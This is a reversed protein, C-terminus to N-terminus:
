ITYAAAFHRRKWHMLNIRIAYFAFASDRTSKQKSLRKSGYNKIKIRNEESRECCKIETERETHM